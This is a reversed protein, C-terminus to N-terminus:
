TQDIQMDTGPYEHMWKLCSVSILTTQTRVWNMQMNQFELGFYDSEM